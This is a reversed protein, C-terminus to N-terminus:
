NCYFILEQQKTIEMLRNNLEGLTWAGELRMQGCKQDDDYACIFLAEGARVKRRAEQPQIRSIMAM